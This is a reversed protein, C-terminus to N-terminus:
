HNPDAHCKDRPSYLPRRTRHSGPLQRYSAPLCIRNARALHDFSRALGPSFHFGFEDALDVIQRARGAPVRRRFVRGRVGARLESPPGDYLLRGADLLWIHACREAEELYATSWLVTVGSAVLESVMRWLERRSLPDVGM